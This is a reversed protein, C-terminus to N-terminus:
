KKEVVFRKVAESGDTLSDAGLHVTMTCSGREGAPEGLKVTFTPLQRDESPEQLVASTCLGEVGTTMHISPVPHAASIRLTVDVTDDDKTWVLTSAGTFAIVTAMRGVRWRRTVSAAEAYESNGRQMATIACDILAGQRAQLRTAKPDVVDCYEGGGPNRLQYTVPLGSTACGRLTIANDPWQHNGPSPFVITQRLRGDAARGAVTM